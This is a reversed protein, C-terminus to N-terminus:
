NLVSLLLDIEQPTNYFHPSVRVHNERVSTVVGRALLADVCEQAPRRPHKFAVIQSRLGSTKAGGFVSCGMRSLGVRLRDGLEVVADEVAPIGVEMLLCQSATAGGIAHFDLIGSEFRAVCDRPQLVHDFYSERPERTRVGAATLGTAASLRESMYLWGVGQPGLLWKYSQTVLADVPLSGVDIDLAGVGQMGDVVLFIDRKRCAEGLARLDLRFGSSFQVWSTSIVRTRRNCADLLTDISVQGDPCPIRRLVVGKDRLVVWPLVASPFEIAPAVVEDGDRLDLGSAIMSIGASTSPVYAIQRPSAGTLKAFRGRADEATEHLQPHDLSGRRAQSGLSATMTELAPCSLPGVSAHDLYAYSATM